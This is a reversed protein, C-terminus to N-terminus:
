TKQFHPEWWLLIFLLFSDQLSLSDATAYPAKWALDPAMKGREAPQLELFGAKECSDTIKANLPCDEHHHTFSVHILYLIHLAPLSVEVM